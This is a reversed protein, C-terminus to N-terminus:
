MITVKNDDKMKRSTQTAILDDYGMKGKNWHFVTNYVGSDKYCMVHVNKRLHKDFIVNDSQNITVTKEACNITAHTSGNLSLRSADVPYGINANFAMANFSATFMIAAIIKKM